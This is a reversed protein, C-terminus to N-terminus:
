QIGKSRIRRGSNAPTAPVDAHEFLTAQALRAELADWMQPQMLHVKLARSAHLAYVECDLAENRAGPKKQWIRRVTGGSRIPAKVEAMLQEFYDPSIDRYFHIRAPGTGSLTMRGNEGLLLDKARSTGVIYPTVGYKAAKTNSRNTDISALPKRFIEADVKTAGKIAMVLVGRGQRSRVYKYAADSTNGDSTDLSLARVRVNFGHEHPYAAFLVKDLDTWVENEAVGPTGYLRLHMVLWSEEGRGWARIIVEIRDHQIDAGATLVLGGAPVQGMEYEGVRSQLFEDTVADNKFAYPLGMSSNVFAILPGVDGSEAEHQATLWKHMLVSMVSGPFPSYLENLYFGAIGMSSATRMWRGRRVNRNKQADTWREGCHPCSYFATEPRKRGFVPHRYSESPDDECHLNDFSLVHEAGCEHCPIMGVRKDSLEMEAAVASLGEITPTGGIVIKHRRYTKVREKALKISDGQGRLNLNCDDPEEIVIRPVPTSKVSAPSNSGVVKIFGGPFRKFLQRQHGQKAKLNIRARLRPTAQVMPEFKEAMYEKAAGEKPFLALIPTPDIDIWKGLANGVVGSTWAVQASKQCVVEHINPDDLADLPGDPWALYPTVDVVYRGPRATELSSLVRFRSAWEIIKMQLPPAWARVATTM